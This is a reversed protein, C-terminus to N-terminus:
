RWPMVPATSRASMEGSDRSVCAAQSESSSPLRELSERNPGDGVLALVADIGRGRLDAFARLLDDVRKIETMRGLWALLFQDDSVDLEHRM